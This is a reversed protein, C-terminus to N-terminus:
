EKNAQRLLGTLEDLQSRDQACLSANLAHNAWLDQVSRGAGLACAPAGPDDAPCAGAAVPRGALASNWLRLGGLTVVAGPDAHAPESGLQQLAEPAAPLGPSLAAKAAPCVSPLTVLRAHTIEQQVTAQHAVLSAVTAQHADVAAAGQDVAEARQQLSRERQQQLDAAARDAQLQWGLGFGILLLLLGVLGTSALRAALPQLAKM